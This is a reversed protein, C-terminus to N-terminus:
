KRNNHHHSFFRIRDEGIMDLRKKIKEIRSGM